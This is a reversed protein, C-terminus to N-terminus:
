STQHNIDPIMLITNYKRCTTTAERNAHDYYMRHEEFGAEDLFDMTCDPCFLTTDAM